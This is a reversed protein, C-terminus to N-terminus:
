SIAEGASHKKGFKLRELIAILESSVEVCQARLDFLQHEKQQKLNQFNHDPTKVLNAAENEAFTRLQRALQEMEHHEATSGTAFEHLKRATSVIQTAFHMFELINAALGASSLPDM